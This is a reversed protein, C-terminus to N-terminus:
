KRIGYEREKQKNKEIKDVKIEEIKRKTEEITNEV